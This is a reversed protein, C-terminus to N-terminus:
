EHSEEGKEFYKKLTKYLAKVLREHQDFGIYEDTTTDEILVELRGHFNKILNCIIRDNIM